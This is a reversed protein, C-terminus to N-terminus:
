KPNKFHIILMMGPSFGLYPNYNFNLDLRYNNWALGAGAYSNLLNPRTGARIFFQKNLNYQLGLDLAFHQAEEKIIGANFLVQGSIEYGIGAKFISAIKDNKIKNFYGGVPNFLNIGFSVKENINFLLGIESNITAAKIYQPIYFNYYSFKLALHINKSLSKGYALGLQSENYNKYGFYDALVALNGIELPLVIISSFFNTESLLFRNEGYVSISPSTLVSLVAINGKMSFPDIHNTSYAGLGLYPTAIPEHINQGFISSYLFLNCFLLLSRKM